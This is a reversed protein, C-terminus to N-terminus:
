KRKSENMMRGQTPMGVRKVNLTRPSPLTGGRAEENQAELTVIRAPNLRSAPNTININCICNYNIQKALKSSLGELGGASKDFRQNTDRKCPCTLKAMM